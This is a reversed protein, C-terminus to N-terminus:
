LDDEEYEMPPMGPLWDVVDTVGRFSEVAESYAQNLQEVDLALKGVKRALVVNTVIMAIFVALFLFYVAPKATAKL